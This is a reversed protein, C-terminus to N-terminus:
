ASIDTRNQIINLVIQANKSRSVRSITKNQDVPSVHSNAKRIELKVAGKTKKNVRAVTPMRNEIYLNKRFGAPRSLQVSVNGNFLKKCNTEQIAAKSSRLDWFEVFKQTEWTRIDRIAGFRSFEALIMDDTVNNPVRFIVITGNNPPRKPDVIKEPHGFHIM